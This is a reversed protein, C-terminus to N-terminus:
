AQDGSAEARLHAIENYLEDALYGDDEVTALAIFPPVLDTVAVLIMQGPLGDLPGGVARPNTQFPLGDDQLTEEHLNEADDEDDSEDEDWYDDSLGDDDDGFEALYEAIELYRETIWDEVDDDHEFAAFDKRAEDLAAIAEDMLGFGMAVAALEIRLAASQENQRGVVADCAAILGRLHELARSDEDLERLCRVYLHHTSVATPSFAGFVLTRDGILAASVELAERARGMALLNRAVAHRQALVMSSDKGFVRELELGALHLADLSEDDPSLRSRFVAVNYRSQAVVPDDPNLLRIRDDLLEQYMRLATDTQGIDDHLQALHGRTDLTSPDDPGLLHMRDHLLTQAMVIAEQPRGGRGVARVLNGRTVLTQPDDAGLVRERDVVLQGLVEEAQRFLGAETLARGLFGRVTMVDPDDWDHDVLMIDILRSCHQAGRAPDGHEIHHQLSLGLLDAERSIDGIEIAEAIAQELEEINDFSGHEGRYPLIFEIAM